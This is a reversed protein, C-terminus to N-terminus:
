KKPFLTLYENAEQLLREADSQRITTETEKLNCIDFNSSETVSEDSEQALLATGSFYLLIFLFLAPRM